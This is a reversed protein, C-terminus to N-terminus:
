DEKANEEEFCIFKSLKQTIVKKKDAQLSM